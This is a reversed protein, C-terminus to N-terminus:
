EDAAVQIKTRIITAEPFSGTAKVETLFAHAEEYTKFNGVRCTWHPSYFHTYVPVDLYSSKFLYGVSYAKQRANRSNDGSYLQVRYGTQVITRGSTRATPLNSEAVVNGNLSNQENRGGVPTKGQQKKANAVPKVTKTEASKVEAKPPDAKGNLLIKLQPAQYIIVTGEGESNKALVDTFTQASVSLGAAMFTLLFVITKKGM